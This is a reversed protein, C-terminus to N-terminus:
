PMDDRRDLLWLTEAADCATRLFNRDWPRGSCRRCPRPSCSCRGIPGLRTAGPSAGHGRRLRVAGMAVCRAGPGPSRRSRACCTRGGKTPRRALADEAGDIAHVRQWGWPGAAIRDAVEHAEARPAGPRWSASPSQCRAALRATPRVPSSAAPTRRPRRPPSSRCPTRTTASSFLRVTSDEAAEPPFRERTGYIAAVAYRLLDVRGTLAGAGHLIRLAEVAGPRGPRDGPVRPRGRRAPRPELLTLSAWVADASAPMPWGTRRLSGPMGASDANTLAAAVEALYGAAASRSRPWTPAGRAVQVAEDLRLAWALALGLRARLRPLREDGPPALECAMSLFTAAEGHARDGAGTRRGGAGARGRGRCRAPGRATTSPPSRPPRSGRLRATRAAELTQALGATCGCAARPTSPPTSPTGSSRTASSTASPRSDPDVLGAHLVEDLAALARRGGAGSRRWVAFPFPGEFGAAADLFRNAEAVPAGGAPWCTGSGEPVAELPLDAQLEGDADTRLAADGAPPPGGRPRLLPERPDGASRSPWRRRCRRARGARRAHAFARRADLGRLHVATVEAERAPRRPRGGAGPGGRRGPLGRGAAAAAAGPGARRPAADDAHRRRGLAPRGAGARGTRARGARCPIPGGRRAPAAGRTPSCRRSPRSTACGSACGPALQALPGAAPGSNPGCGRPAPRPRMGPSPRSSRRTPLYGPARWAAGSLVLAGRRHASAAFEQLLRTKGIGPEGAVLVLRGQGGLAADLATDLQALEADRGVFAGGASAAPAFRLQPPPGLDPHVLAFVHEPRPLGKLRTNGLM